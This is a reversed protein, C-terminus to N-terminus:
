HLPLKGALLVYVCTLLLGWVLAASLACPILVFWTGGKYDQGSKQSLPILYKRDYLFLMTGFLASLLLFGLAAVVMTDARFVDGTRWMFVYSLIAPLAPLLLLWYLREASAPMLPMRKGKAAGIQGALMVSAGISFLLGSAITLGFFWKM